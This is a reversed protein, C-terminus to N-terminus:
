YEVIVVGGVGGTANAANSGEGAGGSGATFNATTSYAVAATSSTAQSRPTGQVSNPYMTPVQEAVTGAAFSSHTRITQTVGSVSSSGSDAPRGAASSASGGVGGTATIYSGFSSTGGSSGAGSNSGAGGNGITVSVSGSIGDIVAIGVGGYGGREMQVTGGTGAGGGGGGVVTVKAKTIGLPVTFTGSATFVEMNSFGGAPPAPPAQSVWDTGNSTLVNGSTGPAVYDIKGDLDTVDAKADFLAATPRLEVRDNISYSRATTGDQGRVVTMTDVSRATVKVIEINNATDILTMYFFDSGGLSPFRAGEGSGVSLTTDSDTISAALVGYANNSVKIGM